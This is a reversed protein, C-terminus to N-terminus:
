APVMACQQGRHQFRGGADGATTDGLFVHIGKLELHKRLETLTVNVKSDKYRGYLGVSKFSM